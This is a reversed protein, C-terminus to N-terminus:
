NDARIEVLGSPLPERLRDLLQPMLARLTALRNNFVRLLLVRAQLRLLNQQQYLNKDITILAEFGHRSMLELLEGNKKGLWGM